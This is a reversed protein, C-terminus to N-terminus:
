FSLERIYKELQKTREKTMRELCNSLFGSYGSGQRSSYVEFSCNTDRFKIWAQEAKILEQRENGSVRNYLNRYVQNLRRDAAQYANYACEKWEINSGPNICNTRQAIIEEEKGVAKNVFVFPIVIISVIVTTRWGFNRKM